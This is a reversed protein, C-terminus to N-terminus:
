PDKKRPGPKLKENGHTSPMKKSKQRLPCPWVILAVAIKMVANTATPITTAAPTNVTAQRRPGVAPGITPSNSLAAAFRSM